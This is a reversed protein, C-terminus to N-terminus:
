NLFLNKRFATITSKNSNIRLDKLYITLIKLTLLSTIKTQLKFSKSNMKHLQKFGIMKVLGQFGYFQVLRKQRVRRKQITNDPLIQNTWRITRKIQNDLLVVKLLRQNSDVAYQLLHNLYIKYIFKSLYTKTLSEDKYKKTVSFFPHTIIKNTKPLFLNQKKTFKFICFNKYKTLFEGKILLQPKLNDFLRPTSNIQSSIINKNLIKM